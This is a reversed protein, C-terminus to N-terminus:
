APSAIPAGLEFSKRMAARREERERHFEALLWQRVATIFTAYDCLAHANISSDIGEVMRAIMGAFFGVMGPKEEHSFNWFSAIVAEINNAVTLPDLGDALEFLEFAESAVLSRALAHPKMSHSEPDGDILSLVRLAAQEQTIM